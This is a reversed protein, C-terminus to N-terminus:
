AEPTADEPATALARLTRATADEPATALARLTRTPSRAGQEGLPAGDM